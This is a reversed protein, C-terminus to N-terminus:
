NVRLCTDEKIRVDINNVPARRIYSLMAKLSNYNKIGTVEYVEQLSYMDGIEPFMNVVLDAKGPRRITLM